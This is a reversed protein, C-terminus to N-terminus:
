IITKRSGLFHSGRAEGAAVPEAEGERGREPASTPGALGAHGRQEPRGSVWGPSDEWM